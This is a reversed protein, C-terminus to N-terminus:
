NQKWFIFNYFTKQVRLFDYNNFVHDLIGITMGIFSLCGNWSYLWKRVEAQLAITKVEQMELTM